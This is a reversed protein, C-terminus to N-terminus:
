SNELLIVSTVTGFIKKIEIVSWNEGATMMHYGWMLSGLYSDEIQFDDSSKNM